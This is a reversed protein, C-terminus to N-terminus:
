MNVCNSYPKQAKLNMNTTPVFVCYGLSKKDNYLALGEETTRPFTGKSLLVAVADKVSLNQPIYYTSKKLDYGLPYGIPYIEILPKDLMKTSCIDEDVLGNREIWKGIENFARKLIAKEEVKKVYWLADVANFVIKRNAGTEAMYNIGEILLPTLDKIRVPPMVPSLFSLQENKEDYSSVVVYKPDFQYGESILTELLQERLKQESLQGACDMVRSLKYM